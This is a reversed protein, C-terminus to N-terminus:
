IDMRWTASIAYDRKLPSYNQLMLDSERFFYDLRHRTSVLCIVDLINGNRGQACICKHYFKQSSENLLKKRLTALLWVSLCVFLCVFLCVGPMVFRGQRVYYYHNTITIM